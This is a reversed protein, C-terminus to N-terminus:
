SQVDALPLQVTVIFCKKEEDLELFLESKSRSLLINAATLGLGAGKSSEPHKVFAEFLSKLEFNCETLFSNEVELSINNENELVRVFVPFEQGNEDLSLHNLANTLLETTLWELLSRTIKAVVPAQTPQFTIDFPQFAPKRLLKKISHQVVEGVNTTSEETGTRGSLIIVSKEMLAQVRWADSIISKLYKSTDEKSLQFSSDPSSRELLSALSILSTLPNGVDHGVRHIFDSLSKEEKLSSTNPDSKVKM